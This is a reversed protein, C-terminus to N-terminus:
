LKMEMFEVAQQDILQTLQNEVTRVIEPYIVATEEDCYVKAIETALVLTNDFKETIHKLFYGHGQFTDNIKAESKIREPFTVEALKKRWAEAIDGFRKNDINSTGM